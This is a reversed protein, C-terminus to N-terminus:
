KIYRNNQQVWRGSRCQNPTTYNIDIILGGDPALRIESAATGWPNNPCPLQWRSRNTVSKRSWTPLNPDLLWKDGCYCNGFMMISSNNVSISLSTQCSGALFSGHLKTKHIVSPTQYDSLPSIDQKVILISTMVM